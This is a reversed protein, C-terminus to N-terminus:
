SRKRNCSKSRLKLLIDPLPAAARADVRPMGWHATVRSCSACFPIPFLPPSCRPRISPAGPNPAPGIFAGLTGHRLSIFRASLMSPSSPTSPNLTPSMPCGHRSIRTRPSTSCKHLLRDRQEQLNQPHDSHRRSKKGSASSQRQVFFLSISYSFIQFGPVVYAKWKTSVRNNAAAALAIFTNRPYM